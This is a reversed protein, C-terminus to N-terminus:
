NDSHETKEIHREDYYKRKNECTLIENPSPIRLFLTASKSSVCCPSWHVQVQLCLNASCDALDHHWISFPRQSALSLFINEIPAATAHRCTNPRGKVYFKWPCPLKFLLLKCKRLELTKCLVLDPVRCHVAEQQLEGGPKCIAAEQLIKCTM